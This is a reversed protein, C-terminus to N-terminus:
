EARLAVATSGRTARVAPICSAAAATLCLGIVALGYLMPDLPDIGYLVAATAPSVLASLVIGIAIGILAPSLAQRSLLTVLSSRSGGLAVRIAIERRRRAVAFAVVSYVGSVALLVAILANMRLSAQGFQLGSQDRAMTESLTGLDLVPLEPDIERVAARVDQVRGSPADRTTVFYVLARGGSQAFPLYMQRVQPSTPDFPRVDGVVGVVTLWMAPREEATFRLRRGLPNEDPWYARALSRSIVVVPMSTATDRPEFTRGQHLPVGLAEFYGPTVTTTVAWPSRERPTEPREEIAIAETPLGLGMTMPLRTAAGVAKIAPLRQLREHIDTLVRAASEPSQYKYDPADLRFTVVQERDFGFPISLVNSTARAFLITLILSFTAVAVELGILASVLPRRRRSTIAGGPPQKIADGATVSSLRLMPVLGFLIAALVVLGSTTALAAGDLSLDSLYPTRPGLLIRIQAIIPISVMLSAVGGVISLAVSEVVLQRVIRGRSAGLAARIAIEGRREMGRALMLNAIHACAAALLLSTVTVMLGFFVVEGPGFPLLGTVVVDWGANTDPRDRELRQAVAHMDAQSSALGVGAELRAVAMMTRPSRAGEARPQPQPVWVDVNKSEFWFDEPMVGIITHPRGDLVIDRGLVNPDRGFRNTWARNSVIAVPTAENVADQPHFARGLAPTVRLLAFLNTTARMAPIREADGLGTLTVPRIAFAAVDEFSRSGQAADAIEAESLPAVFIGRTMNRTWVRVISSADDIPLSPFLLARNFSFSATNFGIGLALILMAGVTFGPNRTLGRFADRVDQAMADRAERRRADRVSGRDEIACAARVWAEDGFRRSTERHAQEPTFGRALYYRELEELHFAIEADVDAPPNAGWFRLHRRWM